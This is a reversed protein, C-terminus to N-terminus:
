QRPAPANQAFAPIGRLRDVVAAIRSWQGLSIGAREANIAQPFLLIDAVSPRDGVCFAGAQRALLAEVSTLGERIWKENWARAMSADFGPISKLTATVRPTLLAHIEAAICLAIARAQARSALSAPLLPPEPYREDLFEIIALSQTLLDGDDTLLAPVLGQPNVDLYERSRSRPSEGLISVDDAEALLGKLALAIRVRAVASSIRTEFIKV